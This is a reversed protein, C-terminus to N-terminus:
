MARRESSHTGTFAAAEVMVPFQAATIRLLIPEDRLASEDKPPIAQVVNM